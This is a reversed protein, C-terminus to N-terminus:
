TSSSELKSERISHLGVRDLHKRMLSCPRSSNKAIDQGLEAPVDIWQPMSEAMKDLGQDISARMYDANFEPLEESSQPTTQSPMQLSEDDKKYKGYKRYEKLQMKFSEELQGASHSWLALEEASLASWETGLRKSYDSSSEEFERCHSKVFLFYASPPRRPEEAIWDNIAEGPVPVPSLLPHQVNSSSIIETAIAGIGSCTSATMDGLAKENSAPVEPRTCAM